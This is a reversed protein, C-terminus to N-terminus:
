NAQKHVSISLNHIDQVGPLTSVIGVITNTILKNTM